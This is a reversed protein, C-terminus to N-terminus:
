TFRKRNNQQKANEIMRLNRIYTSIYFFIVYMEVQFFVSYLAYINIQTAKKCLWIFYFLFVFFFPILQIWMRCKDFLFISYQKVHKWLSHMRLFSVIKKGGAPCKTICRTSYSCRWFSAYINLLIFLLSM